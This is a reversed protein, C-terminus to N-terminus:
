QLGWLKNASVPAILTAAFLYTILAELRFSRSWLIGLGIGIFLMIIQALDGLFYTIYFPENASRGMIAIISPIAIWYSLLAFWIAPALARIRSFGRHQNRFTIEIVFIIASILLLIGFAPRWFPMGRPATYDLLYYAGLVTIYIYQLRNM